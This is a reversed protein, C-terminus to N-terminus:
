RVMHSVYTFWGPELDRFVTTRGLMEPKPSSFIVALLSSTRFHFPSGSSGFVFSTPHRHEEDIFEM